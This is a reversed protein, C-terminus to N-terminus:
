SQPVGRLRDAEAQLVSHPKPAQGDANLDVVLFTDARGMVPKSPRVGAWVKNLQVFLTGAKEKTTVTGVLAVTFYGNVPILFKDPWSKGNADTDLVKPFVTFQLEGSVAAVKISLDQAISQWTVTWVDTSDANATTKEAWKTPDTEFIAYGDVDKMRLVTATLSEFAISESTKNSASLTLEINQTSPDYSDVTADWSLHPTDTTVSPDSIYQTNGDPVLTNDTDGGTVQWTVRTAKPRNLQLLYSEKQTLSCGM